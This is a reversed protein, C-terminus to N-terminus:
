AVMISNRISLLKLNQFSVVDISINLIRFILLHILIVPIGRLFTTEVYNLKNENSYIFALVWLTNGIFIFIYSSIDFGLRDLIYKLAPIQLIM